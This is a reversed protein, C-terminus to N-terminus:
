REDTRENRGRAGRRFAGVGIGAALAVFLAAVALRGGDGTKALTTWAASGAQDLPTELRNAVAVGAVAAAPNEPVTVAAPETLRVCARSVGHADVYSPAQTEVLWYTGAALGGLSAAGDADTVLEVDQASGNATRAVFRGARADDYSRAVKFVAGSLKEGTADLRKDIRLGGTCIRPHTPNEPDPSGDPVVTVQVPEGTASTFSASADNYIAGPADYAAENVRTTLTVTLDRAGSQVILELAADTFTWSVTRAQADFAEEYDVGAVLATASPAGHEDVLEVQAGAVFDLRADLPDRMVLASGYRVAGDAGTAKLEAPVPLVIRWSAAEGVGYVTDPDVAQKAISAVAYSKPYVHVNWRMEAGTANEMPVAVLLKQQAPQLGPMSGQVLLYVGRPLDGFVFAGEADTTGARPDFSALPPTDVSVAPDFGNAAQPDESLRYLTLPVDPLPEADAPLVAGEDGTGAQTGGLQTRCEHVTISGTEVESAAWAAGAGFGASCVLALLVLALLVGLATLIRAASRGRM